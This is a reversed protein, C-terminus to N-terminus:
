KRIFDLIFLLGYLVPQHAMYILLTRRGVAPFFPINFRYFWKPWRRDKIPGGLVVGLFFLLGWPIIPFYDASPIDPWFGQAYYVAIFAGLLPIGLILSLDEPSRRLKRSVFDLLWYLLMCASLLHLIGIVVPTGLITTPHYYRLVAEGLRETGPDDGLKAIETWVENKLPVQHEEVFTWIETNTVRFGLASRLSLWPSALPFLSGLTVIVACGLTLLGRRLNNHSFRSSVGALVIFLGAFLVVLSDLLPNYLVHEPIVGRAYLDYGAHYAIMLLISLGRLADLLPIRNKPTSTEPVSM